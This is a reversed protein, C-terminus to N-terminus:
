ISHFRAGAVPGTDKGSVKPQLRIKYASRGGAASGSGTSQLRRLKRHKTSATNLFMKKEGCRQTPNKNKTTCKRRGEARGGAAQRVCLKSVCLKDVCLKSM